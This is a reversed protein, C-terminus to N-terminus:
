FSVLLAMHYTKKPNIMKCELSRIHAFTAGEKGYVSRLVKELSKLLEAQVEASQVTRSTLIDQRIMDITDMFYKVYQSVYQNLLELITEKVTMNKEQKKGTSTTQKNKQEEFATEMLVLLENYGPNKNVREELEQKENSERVM